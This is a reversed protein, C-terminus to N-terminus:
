NPARTRFIPTDSCTEMTNIVFEWRLHSCLCYILLIAPALYITFHQKWRASCKTSVTGTIKMGFVKSFLNDDKLIWKRVRLLGHLVHFQFLTQARLWLIPNTFKWISKEFTIYKVRLYMNKAQTHKTHTVIPLCTIKYAM